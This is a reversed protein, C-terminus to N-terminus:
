ARGLEQIAKSLTSNQMMFLQRNADFNRQIPLIEMFENQMAVNSFENYGQKVNPNIVALGENTVVSLTGVYELKNTAKNFVNINGDTDIKIDTLKEFKQPIRIPVGANSLVKSDELSLLEGNQNVKFRGDRTLKIGNPDQVQFYGKTAIAIDLPNDSMMIRGVSDDVAKSLGHAGIYESFSSVVAERRQYGIKDFGMVNENHIGLIETQLHMTRLNATMGNNIYSANGYLRM